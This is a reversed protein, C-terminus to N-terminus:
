LLPRQRRSRIAAGAIPLALLVLLTAGLAIGGWIGYQFLRHTTSPTPIGRPKIPGTPYSQNAQDSMFTIFFYIVWLAVVGIWIRLAAWWAGHRRTTM